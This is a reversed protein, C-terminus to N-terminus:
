DSEINYLEITGYIIRNLLISYTTSIYEKIKEKIKENETPVFIIINFNDDNLIIDYECNTVKVMSISVYEKIINESNYNEIIQVDENIEEDDNSKIETFELIKNKEYYDLNNFFLEKIKEIIKNLIEYNINFIDEIKQEFIKMFNNHEDMINLSLPYIKDYKRYNYM